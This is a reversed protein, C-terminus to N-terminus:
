PKLVRNERSAEDDRGLQERDVGATEIRHVGAERGELVVHVRHIRGVVCRRVCVRRREGDGDSEPLEPHLRDHLEHRSRFRSASSASM